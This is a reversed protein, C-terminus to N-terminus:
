SKFADQFGIPLTIASINIHSPLPSVPSSPPTVPKKPLPRLAYLNIVVYFYENMKHLQGRFQGTQGDWVLNNELWGLYVGDRSFLYNNIIFGFYIGSSKFIYNM